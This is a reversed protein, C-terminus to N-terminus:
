SNDGSIGLKEQSVKGFGDAETASVIVLVVSEYSLLFTSPIHMDTRHGICTAIITLTVTATRSM